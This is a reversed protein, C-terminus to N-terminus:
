PKAEGPQLLAARGPALAVVRVVKRGIKLRVDFRFGQPAASLAVAELRADAHLTHEEVVVRDGPHIIVASKQKETTSRGDAGDTALVMRGPGGPNNKNAVMVWHAGTHPDRIERLVPAPGFVSFGSNVQRERVLEGARELPSSQAQGCAMLAAAILGGAVGEKLKRTREVGRFRM